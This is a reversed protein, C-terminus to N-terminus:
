EGTIRFKPFSESSYHIAGDVWHIWSCLAVQSAWSGSPTDNSFDSDLVIASTSYAFCLTHVFKEIDKLSKFNPALEKVMNGIRSKAEAIKQYKKRSFLFNNSILRRSSTLELDASIITPLLYVSTSAYESKLLRNSYDIACELYKIANEASGIASYMEGIRAYIITMDYAQAPDGKGNGSPIAACFPQESIDWYTRAHVLAKRYYYLATLSSSIFKSYGPAHFSPKNVFIDGVYLSVLPLDPIINNAKSAWIYANTLNSNFCSTVGSLEDSLSVKSDGSFSNTEKLTERIFYQDFHRGIKSIDGSSQAIHYITTWDSYAPSGITLLFEYLVLSLSYQLTINDEFNQKTSTQQLAWRTISFKPNRKLFKSVRLYHPAEDLTFTRDLPPSVCTDQSKASQSVSALRYLQYRETLDISSYVAAGERISLIKYYPSLSENQLFHFFEHSVQYLFLIMFYDKLEDVFYAQKHDSWQEQFAFHRLLKPDFHFILKSSRPDYYAQAKLPAGLENLVKNFRNRDSLVTITLSQHKLPPIDTLEPDNVVSKLKNNTYYQNLVFLTSSLIYPVIHGFNTESVSQEIIRRMVNRFNKDSSIPRLADILENNELSFHKLNKSVIEIDTEISIELSEIRGYSIKYPGYRTVKSEVNTRQAERMDAYRSRSLLLHSNATIIAPNVGAKTCLIFSMYITLITHFIM